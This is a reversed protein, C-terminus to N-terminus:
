LGPAVPLTVGGGSGIGDVTVEVAADGSQLGEPVTVNIQYLGVFGPAGGAYHVTAAKKRQRGVAPETPLTEADKTGTNSM